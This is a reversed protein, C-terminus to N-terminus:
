NVPVTVPVVELTWDNFKQSMSLIGFTAFGYGCNMGYLSDPSVNFTHVSGDPINRITKTNLVSKLIVDPADRLGPADTSQWHQFVGTSLIIRKMLPTMIKSQQHARFVARVKAEPRSQAKLVAETAAKSYEWSRRPDYSLAENRFTTFDNWMFGFIAPQGPSVPTFDALLEELAEQYAPILGDLLEPHNNLFQRQNLAGILEFSLYSPHAFLRGPDYGPELGGHNCQLYDGDTGIYIVAPLLDYIRAVKNVYIKSGFKRIIEAAFGYRAILRIDEHNGRAMWVTNPNALRLRLLTYVVEVGFHGRDTYDGLFVLHTFPDIVKFGDMIGRDQLASITKILSRIDGHLDGQFIVKSKPPLTLKQAFPQFNAPAETLYNIEKNYFEAGPKGSAWIKADVLQGAVQAEFFQDLTKVFEEPSIASPPSKEGNEIRQNSTLDACRTKWETWTVPVGKTAQTAQTAEQAQSQDTPRLYLAVSALVFLGAYLSIQHSRRM